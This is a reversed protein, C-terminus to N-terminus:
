SLWSGYARECERLAQEEPAYHGYTVPAFRELGFEALTPYVHPNADLTLLESRLRYKLEPHLDSRVVIPQIPFPGWSEIVRLCGRLEPSCKLKIKLINSDIAVADVEGRAVMEM